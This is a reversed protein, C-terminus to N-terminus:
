GKVADDLFETVLDRVLRPEDGPEPTLVEGLYSGHNGPVILLRSHPIVRSIEV